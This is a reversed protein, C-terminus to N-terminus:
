GPVRGKIANARATCTLSRDANAALRARVGAKLTAAQSPEMAKIRPGLGPGLLYTSWFADFDAFTREVTIEQTAIDQLGAAAWLETSERLGAARASPPLPPTLGMARMEVFIPDAPFGGGLMDWAYSAVVGGPRVVRTMEAVGKAPDPVFFIVLGMVALDFEADHYPLAMADGCRFHVPGATLRNQAYTVQAESPDIGQVESPSCRQVILASFAGNGCGVDLWRQGSAPALWSLFTDGAMRSWIGMFQEYAAGDNFRIQEAM